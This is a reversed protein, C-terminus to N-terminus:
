AVNAKWKLWLRLHRHAEIGLADVPLPLSEKEGDVRFSLVILWPFVTTSPLVQAERRSGDRRAIELGGDAKLTLSPTPRWRLWRVLSLAIFLGLMLKAPAPLRTLAMGAAALAHAITLAVALIRSPKLSLTVPLEM